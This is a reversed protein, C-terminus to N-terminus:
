IQVREIGARIRTRSQPTAIRGDDIGARTQDRPGNKLGTSHKSGLIILETLHVISLSDPITFIKALIRTVLWEIALYLLKFLRDVGVMSWHEIRSVRPHLM